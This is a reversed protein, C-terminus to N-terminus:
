NNDYTCLCSPQGHLLVFWHFLKCTPGIVSRSRYRCSMVHERVFTVTRSSIHQKHEHVVHLTIPRSQQTNISCNYKVFCTNVCPTTPTYQTAFTPLIVFGHVDFMCYWLTNLVHLRYVYLTARLMNVINWKFTYDILRGAYVFVFFLPHVLAEHRLRHGRDLILDVISYWLQGVLIILDVISCWLQCIRDVITNWLQCSRDVITNRLKSLEQNKSVTETALRGLVM